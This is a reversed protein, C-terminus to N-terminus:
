TAASPTSTARPKECPMQVPQEPAAEAGGPSKSVKPQVAQWPSCRFDGATLLVPMWTEKTAGSPVGSLPGYVMWVFYWTVMLNSSVFWGSAVLWAPKLRRAEAPLSSATAPMECTEESPLCAVWTSGVRVVQSTSQSAGSEPATPKLRKTLSTSPEPTGWAGAGGWETWSPRVAGVPLTTPAAALVSGTSNPMLRCCYQIPRMPRAPMSNTM